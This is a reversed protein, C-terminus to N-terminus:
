TSSNQLLIKPGAGNIQADQQRGWTNVQFLSIFTKNSRRAIGKLGVYM